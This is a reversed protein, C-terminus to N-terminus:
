TVIVKQTKSVDVQWFQERLRSARFPRSRSIDRQQM